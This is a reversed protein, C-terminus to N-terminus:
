LEVGVDGSDWIAFILIENGRRFTHFSSKSGNMAAKFVTLPSLFPFHCFILWLRARDMDGKRALLSKIPRM